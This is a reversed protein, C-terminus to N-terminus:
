CACINFCEKRMTSEITYRIGFLMLSESVFYETGRYDRSFISNSDFNINNALIITSAIKNNSTDYITSQEAPMMYYIQAALTRPTMKTKTRHAMVVLEMESTTTVYDSAKNGFARNAIPLIGESFIRHYMVLAYSDDYVCPTGEGDLNIVCPQITEGGDLNTQSPEAIGYVRYNHLSTVQDMGATLTANIAEVIKDEYPM